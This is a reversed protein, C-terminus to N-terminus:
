TSDKEFDREWDPNGPGYSPNEDLFSPCGCVECASGIGIRQWCPFECDTGCVCKESGPTVNTGDLFIV